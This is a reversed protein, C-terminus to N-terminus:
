INCDDAYRAFRHGRAELTKDLEDLLLNALLPSLPGGQPTGARNPQRQGNISIDAKLIRHIMITITKDDIRQTIRHMLIGHNVSDSFKELDM